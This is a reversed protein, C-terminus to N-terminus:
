RELNAALVALARALVVDNSASGALTRRINRARKFAEQGDAIGAAQIAHAVHWTARVVDASYHEDANYSQM